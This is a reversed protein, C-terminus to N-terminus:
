IKHLSTSKWFLSYFFFIWELHNNWNCSYNITNLMFWLAPRISVFVLIWELRNTSTILDMEWIVWEYNRRHLVVQVVVFRMCILWIWKNKCKSTIYIYGLRERQFRWFFHPASPLQLCYNMHIGDMFGNWPTTTFLHKSKGFCYIPLCLSLKSTWHYEFLFRKVSVCDLYCCCCCCGCIM